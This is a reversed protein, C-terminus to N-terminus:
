EGAGSGGSGGAGIALAGCRGAIPAGGCDDIDSPPPGAPPPYPMPREGADRGGSGDYKGDAGTDM